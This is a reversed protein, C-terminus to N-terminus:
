ITLVGHILKTGDRGMLGLHINEELNSLEQSSDITALAGRKAKPM